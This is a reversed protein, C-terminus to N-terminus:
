LAEHFPHGLPHLTPLRPPPLALAAGQLVLLQPLLQHLCGRRVLDGPPPDLPVGTVRLVLIGVVERDTRRLALLAGVPEDRRPEVDPEGLLPRPPRVAAVIGIPLEILTKLSPTGPLVRSLTTNMLAEGHTIHALSIM